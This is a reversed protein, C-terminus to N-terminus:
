RGAERLSIYTKVTGTLEDLRQNTERGQDILDKVNGALSNINAHNLSAMAHTEEIRRSMEPEREQAWTLHEDLDKRTDTTIHNLKRRRGMAAGLFSALTVSATVISGLILVEQAGITM